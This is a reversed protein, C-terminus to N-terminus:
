LINAHESVVKWVHLCKQGNKKAFHSFSFCRQFDTEGIGRHKQKEGSKWNDKPSSKVPDYHGMYIHKLKVRQKVATATHKPNSVMQLSGEEAPKLLNEKLTKKYEARETFHENKWRLIKHIYALFSIFEVLSLEKEVYEHRGWMLLPVSCVFSFIAEHNHRPLNGTSFGITHHQM